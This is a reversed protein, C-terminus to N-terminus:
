TRKFASCALTAWGIILLMGGLPTLKLWISLKTFITLYISFSFLITGIIFLYAAFKLLLSQHSSRGPCGLLSIMVAYLQHYYLATKAMSLSKTDLQYILSHDLYAGMMMSILGLLAGIFLIFNRM